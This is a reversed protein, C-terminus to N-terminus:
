CRAVCFSTASCFQSCPFSWKGLFGCALRRGLIFKNQIYMCGFPTASVYNAVPVPGFWFPISSEAVISFYVFISLLFTSFWKLDFYIIIYQKRDIVLQQLGLLTIYSMLQLFGQRYWRRMLPLKMNM